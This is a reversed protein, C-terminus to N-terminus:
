RLPSRPGRVRRAFMPTLPAVKKEPEPKKDTRAPRSGKKEQAMATQTNKREPKGPEQTPGGPMGAEVTERRVMADLKEEIHPEEKQRAMYFEDYYAKAFGALPVAVIAGLIGLRYTMARAFFLLYVPNLQM